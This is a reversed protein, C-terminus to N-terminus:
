SGTLRAVFPEVDLLDVAGDRNMDAKDIFIKESLAEVFPAVDLLDVSNDCNVDGLLIAAVGALGHPLDTKVAGVVTATGDSTDVRFIESPRM